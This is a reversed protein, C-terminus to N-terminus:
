RCRRENHPLRPDLPVLVGAVGCVRVSPVGGGGRSDCASIAFVGAGRCLVRLWGVHARFRDLGSPNENMEICSFRSCGSRSITYLSTQEESGDFGM